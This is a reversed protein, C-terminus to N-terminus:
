VDDVNPKLERIRALVRRKAGFVANETIGLEDAVREAPWGRLAFLEFAEYTVPKVEQRVRELCVRLIADSWEENWVRELDDPEGIRAFYGTSDPADVIQVERRRQRRFWNMSQNRAIGFLWDRLRGQGRDYKGDRFAASFAILTHQAIDEADAESAGLRRAYRVIMPRYRDVYQQWTSSAGDGRLGELLVTNTVTTVAGGDNREPEV